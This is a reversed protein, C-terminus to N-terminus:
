YKITKINKDSFDICVTDIKGNRAVCFNIEGYGQVTIENDSVSLVEGDESIAWAVNNGDTVCKILVGFPVEVNYVIGNLLLNACRVSDEMHYWDIALFYIHKIGNEQNYVAFEVNEDTKAWVSESEVANTIVNIMQKEYLERIANNAPYVDTNFLLVKGKGIKYECLLPKGDDTKIVVNDATMANTCINLEKGNVTSKKFEPIGKTFSFENEEFVFKGNRIDEINTTVTLHARTLLLTSGNKVAEMLREADQKLMNNYGLFILTKYDFFIEAKSEAPIVDMNGYPSYSYHGIPRDTPCNHIYVNDGPVSMPYITKTLDWSDEADTQPCMIGWPRGKVFFNTGDDRGHILAYPTHFVGSRTHSSVYRYFDQQQKTHGACANNFRHHYSYYEELRWLGEETNIDTAGLMYSVYLALRYRKYHEDCEHPTTSWQVAHHVGYSKMDVSKAFGRLFAMYPEMTQYMTEAGVWSYGAEYFYKFAISPGTHRIDIDHKTAKLQDVVMKRSLSNDHPRNRNAYAHISEGEYEFSAPCYKTSTHKPDENYALQFVDLLQERSYSPNRNM